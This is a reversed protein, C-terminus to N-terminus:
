EWVIKLTEVVLCRARVGAKSVQKIKCTEAIM